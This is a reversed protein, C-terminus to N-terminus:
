ESGGCVWRGQTEMRLDETPDPTRWQAVDLSMLLLLASLGSLLLSVPQASLLMDTLVSLTHPSAM